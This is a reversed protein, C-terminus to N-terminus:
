LTIKKRNKELAIVFEEFWAVSNDAHIQSPSVNENSKEHETQNYGCPHSWQSRKYM